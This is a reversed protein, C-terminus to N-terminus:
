FIIQSEREFPKITVLFFLLGNIGEHKLQTPDILQFLVVFEGALAILRAAPVLAIYLWIFPKATISFSNHAPSLLTGPM